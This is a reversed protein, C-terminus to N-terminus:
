AVREGCIGCVGTPPVEVFCNPCLLSVREPQAPTRRVPAQRPAREARSRPVPSAAAPRRAAPVHAACYFRVYGSHNKPHRHKYAWLEDRPRPERDPGCGACRAPEGPLADALLVPSEFPLADRWDASETIRM